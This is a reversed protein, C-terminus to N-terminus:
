NHRERRKRIIYLGIFVAYFLSVAGILFTRVEKENWTKSIGNVNVASGVISFDDSEKEHLINIGIQNDPNIFDFSIVLDGKYPILKASISPSTLNNDIQYSVIEIGKPIQVRIPDHGMKSVDNGSLALAGTNTLILTTKYLDKYEKEKITVKLDNINNSSVINSIDTEYKMIPKNIYFQYSGVAIASVGILFAGTKSTLFDWLSMFFRKYPHHHILPIKM